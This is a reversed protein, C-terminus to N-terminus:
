KQMPILKVPATVSGLKRSKSFSSLDPRGTLLRICQQIDLSNDGNASNKSISDLMETVSTTEVGHSPLIELLTHRFSDADMSGDQIDVSSVAAIKQIAYHLDEETKEPEM